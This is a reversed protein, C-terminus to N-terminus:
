PMVPGLGEGCVDVVVAQVDCCDPAAALEVVFVQAGESGNVCTCVRRTGEVVCDAEAGLDCADYAGVRCADGADRRCLPVRDDDTGCQCRDLAALADACDPWYFDDDEPCVAGRAQCGSLADYAATCGDAVARSRAGNWVEICRPVTFSDDICALADLQACIQGANPDPMSAPEPEPEPAPAVGGDGLAAVVVCRGEVCRNGCVCVADDACAGGNEVAGGCPEAAPPQCAFFGSSCLVVVVARVIVRM